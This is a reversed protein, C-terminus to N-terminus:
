AMITNNISYYWSFSPPSFPPTSATRSRSAISTPLTSGVFRINDAWLFFTQSSCLCSIVSQYHYLILKAVWENKIIFYFKLNFFGCRMYIYIYLPFIGILGLECCTFTLCRDVPLRLQYFPPLPVIFASELFDSMKVM